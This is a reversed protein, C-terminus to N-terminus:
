GLVEDSKQAKAKTKTVFFQEIDNKIVKGHANTYPPPQVHAVNTAFCSSREIGAEHLMRDLEMGSPGRFPRGQEVEYDGPAEGILYINSNPNGDQIFRTM